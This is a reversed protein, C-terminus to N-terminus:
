QSLGDPDTGSPCPDLNSPHDVEISWVPMDPIGELNPGNFVGGNPNARAVGLTTLQANVIRAPHGFADDFLYYGSARLYALAM